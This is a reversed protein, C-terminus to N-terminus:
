TRRRAVLLGAVLCALLILSPGVGPARTRTGAGKDPPNTPSETDSSTMNNTPSGSTGTATPTPSNAVTSAPAFRLVEPHATPNGGILVAVSGTWVTSPHSLPHPLPVSLLEAADGAPDFRVIESLSTGQWGGANGGLIFMANGDSVAAALRRGSPLKAALTEVQGSSPTFRVIKDSYPGGGTGTDGGFVYLQNGVRAAAPGALPTPLRELLIEVVGTSPSFKVIEDIATITIGALDDVPTRGRYGGFVYISHDDSAAATAFRPYPLRGLLTKVEGTAPNYSVIADTLTPGSVPSPTDTRGGFIYAHGQFWVASTASRISPLRSGLTELRDAGPDYRLIDDFRTADPTDSYGGFILVGSGDWVASTSHRPQPLKGNGTQVTYDDTSATVTLAAVSFALVIWFPRRSTEFKGLGISALGVSWTDAGRTM